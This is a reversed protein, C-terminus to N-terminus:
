HLIVVRPICQYDSYWTSNYNLNSAIATLSQQQHIGIEYAQILTKHQLEKLCREYFFLGTEGGDLATKPDYNKVSPDLNELDKSPIYPPNSIFVFPSSFSRWLAKEDFFDSHILHLNTAQLVQKNKTALHYAQESIDWAYVTAQPFELALEISIIGSGFGLEVITLKDNTMSHITQICHEVLLETEPRPILVDKQVLYKNHRFDSFGIILDLPENNLRRQICQEFMQIQQTNTVLSNLEILLDASSLNFCHKILHRTEFQATDPHLPSLKYEAEKILSSFTPIM